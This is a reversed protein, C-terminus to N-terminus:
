FSTSSVGVVLLFESSPFCVGYFCGRNGYVFGVM